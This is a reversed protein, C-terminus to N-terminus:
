ARKQREAVEARREECVKEFIARDEPFQALMEELDVRSLETVEAGGKPVVISAVRRCHCAGQQQCDPFLALEGVISGPGISAVKYGVDDMHVLRSGAVSAPKTAAYVDLTGERIVYMKDGVDGERMLVEGAQLSVPRLKTALAVLCDKGLDGFLTGQKRKTKLWERRNRIASRTDALERLHAYEVQDEEHLLEVSSPPM